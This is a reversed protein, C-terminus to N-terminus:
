ANKVNGEGTVKKKENYRQLLPIAILCFASVISMLMCPGTASPISDITVELDGPQEIMFAASLRGCFDFTYCSTGNIRIGTDDYRYPVILTCIGNLDGSDTRFGSGNIKGSLARMASLASEDLKYLSVRCTEDGESDVILELTVEGSGNKIETFFPGTFARGASGDATSIDVAAGGAANCYVFLREGEEVIFPSFKLTNPGPNLLYSNYGEQRFERKDSPNLFIEEFLMRGSIKMSLYNMDDIVSYGPEYSRLDAPVFLYEDECNLVPLDIDEDIILSEANGTGSDNRFYEQVSKKQITNNFMIFAANIGVFILIFAFAVAKAIRSLRNKAYAYVLAAEIIIGLFTSIVVPSALTTGSTSNGSIILFFLPILCSAIHDGRSLGKINKLGIGAVLFLIVEMCILKASNLMPSAGFISITENVFSSCCTIHIVSVIVATAVKLRLPIRENLAFVIVGVVTLIGIYFMPATNQYIGGSRLLFMGRVMEFVTYTVRANKFSEKINLEISMSILGPIVFVASLGFGFVLTSLLKLWSTIMMKFSGYLSICMLLGILIMVPLGTITGFGGSVILGFSAIGSIVYANWTRKQLYSDFASMVVPMMVAMNMVSSFQATLIVQSSFTYMLALLVSFMRSLKLHKSLFYYMAASCLGFRLYYGAMLVTKVAAQPVILALYFFLDTHVFTLLRWNDGAAKGSRILNVDEMSLEIGRLIHKCMEGSRMSIGEPLIKGPETNLGINLAIVAILVSTIFCFATECITRFKGANKIM